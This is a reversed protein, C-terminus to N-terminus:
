YRFSTGILYNNFINNYRYALDFRLKNALIFSLGIGFSLNKYYIGYLIGTRIAFLKSIWWEFGASIYDFIEFNWATDIEINFKSFIEKNIKTDKEIDIDDINIDIDDIDIKPEDLEIDLNSKNLNKNELKGIRFAVGSVIMYDTIFNDIKVGLWINKSLESHIGFSADFNQNENIGYFENKYKGLLGLNFNESIALSCDFYFNRSYIDKKESSYVEIDNAGLSSYGGALGVIGFKYNAVFNIGSVEPTIKNYVFSLSNHKVKSVVAPNLLVSSVENALAVYTSVCGSSIADNEIVSAFSKSLLFNFILIIIILKM